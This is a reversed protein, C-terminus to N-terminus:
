SLTTPSAASLAAVHSVAPTSAEAAKHVAGREGKVCVCVCAEGKEKKQKIHQHVKHLPGVSKQYHRSCFSGLREPYFLLASILNIDLGFFGGCFCVGENPNKPLPSLPQTKIVHHFIFVGNCCQLM